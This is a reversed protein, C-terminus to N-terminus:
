ALDIILQVIYQDNMSIISLEHKAPYLLELRRKVNDLGIGGEGSKMEHTITGLTNYASLSLRTGKLNLEINIKIGKIKSESGHKFCNEIFPVLLLPAILFDAPDAQVLYTVEAREELTMQQLNIYDNLFEIERRLSVKEHVAEYLMYRLIDSLQLIMQPTKESRHLAFSYLNNLNNFLVHPNLQLKLFNLESESREKELRIFQQQRTRHDWTLKALVFIGIMTLFDPITTLINMVSFDGEGRTDPYFIKEMVQEEIVAGMFLVILVFFIFTFYRDRNLYRPILFYNIILVMCVYNIM